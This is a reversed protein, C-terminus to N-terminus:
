GPGTGGRSAGSRPWRRGRGSSCPRTPSSAPSATASSSSACSARASWAPRWRRSCSHRALGAQGPPRRRGRARGRHPVRARGRTTLFLVPLTAFREDQRLYRVLDYGSVGPLLVDMLVLDPRFAALEAELRKPDDVTRVEYGGSELVSRLFAAQQPDDEISLVRPPEAQERELLFRLRRVLAGLGGAERLLRGRRLPHGGRPRPGRRAKRHRLRGDARRGRARARGRGARLGRGPRRLCGRHPRGADRTAALVGALRPEPRVAFGEQELALALSQLDAADEDDVVVTPPAPADSSPLPRRRRGSSRAACRPRRRAGAACTALGGGPGACPGCAARRRARARLRRAPRLDGRLGRLRPLRAPPGAPRARRRRGRRPPGAHSGARGAPQKAERLYLVRLDALEDDWATTM